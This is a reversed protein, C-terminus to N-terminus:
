KRFSKYNYKIVDSMEKIRDITRLGYRDLIDNGSLNSSVVMPLMRNYREEIIKIFPQIINGYEKLEVQEVGIDDLLLVRCWQGRFVQRETEEMNNLFLVPFSSAAFLRSSVEYENLTSRIARLLTTKGTGVNGTLFLWRKGGQRTLWQAATQIASEAKGGDMQMGRGAVEAQYFLRLTAAVEETPSNIIANSRLNTNAVKQMVEAISQM